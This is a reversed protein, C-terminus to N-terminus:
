GCRAPCTAAPLGLVAERAPNARYTAIGKLGARWAELYLSRFEDYPCDEAVNVTKSIAADVYPQVAASMLVHDRASIQLASVFAPPPHAPDGGLHTYLRLALDDVRYDRMQGDTAHRRRVHTYAYVPEIGASANGAFAISISGTPAISLLHSNRIGNRRIAERLAEPLRSAAHPAALYRDADFLPFPGRERALAVSALCAADRLERAFRAAMARGEGRDYRLGLMVLASGLGTFGLGIRRKARAEDAQARLPWRGLDIVNDLARVAVAAVQRLRAWGVRAGSTFPAEVFAPLNLSGLDCGGYAPLPQEGCPNTAAITECYSLNNDRAIRDIFIVGPEANDYAARMIREWLEAARVTRHIWLGDERRGAAPARPAVAHVLEFVGDEALARMFGDTVALSLNFSTLAGERKAAIFADVDPHDIRLVGMQASRRGGVPRQAAGAADFARLCAAVGGHADGGVPTAGAPRVGSFDYGVGGGQRMTQAAEDLAILLGPRGRADHGELADGLPQVFCNVLTASSQTGAAANIRGAPIFGRRQARLFRRAWAARQAPPEAQALASAVRRRIDAVDREGPRLYKERLVDRTLEQEPLAELAIPQNM